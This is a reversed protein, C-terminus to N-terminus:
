ENMIINWINRGERSQWLQRLPSMLHNKNRKNVPQLQNFDGSLRRKDCSSDTQTEKFQVQAWRCKDKNPDNHRGRKMEEKLCM